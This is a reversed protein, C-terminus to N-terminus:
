KTLKRIIAPSHSSSTKLPSRKAERSSRKPPPTARTPFEAIWQSKWKATPRLTEWNMAANVREEYRSVKLLISGRIKIWARQSVPKTENVGLNTPDAIRGTKTKGRSPASNEIKIYM